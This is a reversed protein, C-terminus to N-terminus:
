ENYPPTLMVGVKMCQEYATIQRLPINGGVKNHEGGKKVHVHIADVFMM